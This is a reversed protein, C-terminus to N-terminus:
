FRWAMMATWVFPIQILVPLTWVFMALALVAIWWGEAHKICAGLTTLVLGWIIWISIEM